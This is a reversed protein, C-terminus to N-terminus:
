KSIFLLGTTCEELSSDINMITAAPIVEYADELEDEDNEEKRLTFATLDDEKDNERKRPHPSM